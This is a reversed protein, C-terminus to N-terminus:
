ANKVVGGCLDCIFKSKDRNWESRAHSCETNIVEGCQICFTVEVEGRFNTLIDTFTEDGCKDTHTM